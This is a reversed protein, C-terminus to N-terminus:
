TDDKRENVGILRYVKVRNTLGKRELTDEILGDEQLEVLIRVITTLYLEIGQELKAIRPWCTHDEGARDALSM